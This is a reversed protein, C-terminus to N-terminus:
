AASRRAIRLLVDAHYPQGPPCWCALDKGALGRAEDISIPLKGALLDREYLDVAEAATNPGYPIVKHPNGYRGPRAVTVAGDPLRWGKTRRLQIRTAGLQRRRDAATAPRRGSAAEATSTMIRDAVEPPIVLECQELTIAADTEALLTPLDAARVAAYTSVDAPGEHQHIRVYAIPIASSPPM